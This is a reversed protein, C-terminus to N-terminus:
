QMPNPPQLTKQYFALHLHVAAIYHLAVGVM